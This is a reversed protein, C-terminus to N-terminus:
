AVAKAKEPLAAGDGETLGLFLEELSPTEPVLATVPIRAQGLAISLAGVAEEDAQDVKIIEEIRRDLPRELVERILTM